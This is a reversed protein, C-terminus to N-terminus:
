VKDFLITSWKELNKNTYFYDKPNNKIDLNNILKNALDDLTSVFHIENSKMLPSMNLNNGDNFVLVKLGFTYADVQASTMNSCLCIRYTNLADNINGDYIEAYKFDYKSLNIPSNIHPKFIYHTKGPYLNEYKQLFNMMDNTYDKSYDLFVLLGDENRNKLTIKNQYRLAECEILKTKDYGNRIFEDKAFLSNVLYFSNKIDYSTNKHDISSFHRLDWFRITSHPVAYIHNNSQNSVVECLINEWGQNESLYFFKKQNKILDIKNIAYQYVFLSYILNPGM